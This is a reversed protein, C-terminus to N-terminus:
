RCAYVRFADDPATYALRWAGAAVLAEMRSLVLETEPRYVWSRQPTGEAEPADWLGYDPGIVLFCVGRQTLLAALADATTAPGVTPLPMVRRGSTLRDVSWWASMIGADPPTHRALWEGRARQVQDARRNDPYRLVMVGNLLVLAVAVVVVAGRAWRGTPGGKLARSVGLVLGEVGLLFAYLLPALIPHLFRRNNWDWVLLVALYALTPPLLVSARGRRWWRVLGLGMTLTIGMGVAWRLAQLGHAEALRDLYLSSLAPVVAAPFDHTLRHPITRALFAPYPEPRAGLALRQGGLLTQSQRFYVGPFLAEAPVPTLVVVLATIAAMLGALVGLAVWGRRGRRRLWYLEMGALLVWGVTRTFVLFTIAAATAPWWWWPRSGREAGWAILLAASLFWVLFVAESLVLRAQLVVIPSVCFLATVARRFSVGGLRPWGWFLLTAGIGTALLSLLRLSNPYVPFWALFPALVLPYGWPFDWSVRGRTGDDGGLAQALEIYRGSDTSLLPHSTFDWLVLALLVAMSLLWTALASGAPQGNKDPKERQPTHVHSFM